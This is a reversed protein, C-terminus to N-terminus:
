KSKQKSCLWALFEQNTLLLGLPIEDLLPFGVPILGFVWVAKSEKASSHVAIRHM